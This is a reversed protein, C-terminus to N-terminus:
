HIVMFRKVEKLTSHRMRVNYTGTRWAEVNVILQGTQAPTLEYNTVLQGTENFIELSTATKEAFQYHITIEDTTPNPALRWGIDVIAVAKEAITGDPADADAKSVTRQPVAANPNSMTIRNQIDSRSSDDHALIKIGVMSPLMMRVKDGIGQRVTYCPITVRQSDVYQATPSLRVSDRNNTTHIMVVTTAGATQANLVQMSLDCAPNLQLLAVKGKLDASVKGCVHETVWRPVPNGASDPRDRLVNVTDLSAVMEATFGSAPTVKGFPMPYLMFRQSTNYVSLVITDVRPTQAHITSTVMCVAIIVWYLKTM